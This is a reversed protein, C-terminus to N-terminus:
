NGIRNIFHDNIRKSKLVAYGSNEIKLRVLPLALEPPKTAKEEEVTDLMSEIKHILHDEITKIDRPDLRPQVKGLEIHDFTFPRVM